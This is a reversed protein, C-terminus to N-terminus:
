GEDSSGLLTVHLRDALAFGAEVQTGFDDDPIGAALGALAICPPVLSTRDPRTGGFLAWSPELREALSVLAAPITEVRGGPMTVRVAQLEEDNVVAETIKASAFVRVNPWRAFEDRLFAPELRPGACVISVDAGAASLHIAESTARWGAGVVVVARGQYFPAEPASDTVVHRRDVADVLHWSSTAGAPSFIVARSHALPESGLPEFLTVAATGLQVREVIGIDEVGLDCLESTLEGVFDSGRTAEQNLRTPPIVWPSAPFYDDGIYSARRVEHGRKALELSAVLGTIGDGVATCSRITTTM